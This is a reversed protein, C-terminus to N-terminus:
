SRHGQISIALKYPHSKAQHQTIETNQLCRLKKVVTYPGEWNQQLKPSPGRRRKPNYMWVLNGEKFYHDTARSDYHIKMRKSSLKVQEGASTQVSCWKEVEVHLQDWYFREQTKHLTKMVGFHRGSTDDHSERLVEQIRIKPLILQRRYFGGDNSEWKRYLVGNLSWRDETTVTLAEVSIDTEM